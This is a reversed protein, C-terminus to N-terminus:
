TDLHHVSTMILSTSLLENVQTIIVIVKFFCGGIKERTRVFFNLLTQTTM